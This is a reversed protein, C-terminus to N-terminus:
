LPTLIKKLCGGRHTYTIKKKGRTKPHKKEQPTNGLGKKKGPTGSLGGRKPPTEFKKAASNNKGGFFKQDEV